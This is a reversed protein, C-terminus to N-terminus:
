EGEEGGEERGVLGVVMIGGKEKERKEKKGEIHKMMKLTICAHIQSTM